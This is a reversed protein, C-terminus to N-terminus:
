VGNTITLIGWFVIFKPSFLGFFRPGLQSGVKSWTKVWFFLRPGLKSEVGYIYMYTHIYIYIYIYKQQLALLHDVNPPSQPWYTTWKTPDIIPGGRFGSNFYHNWLIETTCKESLPEVNKNSEPTKTSFSNKEFLPHYGNGKETKPNHHNNTSTLVLYYYLTAFFGIFFPKPVGQSSSFPWFM